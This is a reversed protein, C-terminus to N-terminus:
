VIDDWQVLIPQSLFWNSTQSLSPSLFWDWQVPVPQSFFGTVPRPCAPLFSQFLSPSLVPVPQSFPSSCAPLFSQFLSPSLSSCTFFGTGSTGPCSWAGQPYEPWVGFGLSGIIWLGVLWGALWGALLWGALWGALQQVPLSFQWLGVQWCM